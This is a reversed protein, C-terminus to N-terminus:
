VDRRRRQIWGVLALAVVLTLFNRIEFTADAPEDETDIASSPGPAPVTQL